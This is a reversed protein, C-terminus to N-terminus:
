DIPHDEEDAHLEVITIGRALLKESITEEFGLMKSLKTLASLKDHMKVKRNLVLGDITEEINSIACADDEDISNIGKLKNNEYLRKINFFAIKAYEAAIKKRSIGLQVSLEEKIIAIYRQVFPNTLLYNGQNKAGKVSYGAAIAAKGANWDYEIYKECFLRQRQNLNTLLEEKEISNDKAM